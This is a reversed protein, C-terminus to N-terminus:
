NLRPGAVTKAARKPADALARAIVPNRTDEVAYMRASKGSYDAKDPDAGRQLLLRVMEARRFRVAKVLPTEGIRNAQDVRAKYTLLVTAVDTQDGTAAMTLPTEGDHESSLNPNAGLALMYRLYDLNNKRVAVHIAGEGDSQYDLVAANLQSRKAAIENLKTGNEEKVAQLWRYGLTTNMGQAALPVAVLLLPLTPVFRFASM